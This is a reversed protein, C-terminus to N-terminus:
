DSSINLRDILAGPRAFTRALEARERSFAALQKAIWKPHCIPVAIQKLRRQLTGARVGDILGGVQRLGFEDDKVAQSQPHNQITLSMNERTFCIATEAKIGAEPLQGVPKAMLFRDGNCLDELSNLKM